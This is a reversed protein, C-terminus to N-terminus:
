ALEGKIFSRRIIEIENPSDGKMKMAILALVSPICLLKNESNASYFLTIENIVDEGNMFAPFSACHREEMIKQTEPSAFSSILDIRGESYGWLYIIRESSSLHNTWYDFSLLAM